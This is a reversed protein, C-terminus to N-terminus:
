YLTAGHEDIPLFIDVGCEGIGFSLVFRQQNIERGRGSSASTSPQFGLRVAVLCDCVEDILGKDRDFGVDFFVRCPKM